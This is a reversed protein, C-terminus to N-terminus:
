NPHFSKWPWQPAALCAPGLDMESIVEGARRQGGRYLKETYLASLKGQSFCVQDLCSLVWHEEGTDADMCNVVNSPPIYEEMRIFLVAPLLNWPLIEGSKTM